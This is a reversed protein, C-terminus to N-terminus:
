SVTLLNRVRPGDCYQAYWRLFLGGQSFGIADFGDALEPIANIQECAETAQEVANGWWGAKQDDSPTGDTPIQVSHVFIGPYLERISDAFQDIGASHATDGLGHWIVVPRSHNKGVEFVAQEREVAVASVGLVWLLSIWVLRMINNNDFIGVVLADHCDAM